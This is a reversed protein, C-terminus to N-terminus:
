RQAVRRGAAAHACGFARRARRPRRAACRLTIPGAGTLTQVLPMRNPALVKWLLDFQEFSIREQQRKGAFAAKV